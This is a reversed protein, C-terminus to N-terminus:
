LIWSSEESSARTDLIADNGIRSGRVEFLTLLIARRARHQMSAAKVTAVPFKIAPPPVAEPLCVFDAL